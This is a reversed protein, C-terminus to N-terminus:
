NLPCYTKDLEMNSLCHVSNIADLLLGAKYPREVKQLAEGGFRSWIFERVSKLPRQISVSLRNVSIICFSTTSM